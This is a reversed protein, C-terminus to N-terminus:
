EDDPRPKRRGAKKKARKKKSELRREQSARTPKTRIRPPTIRARNELKKRLRRLADRLNRYQSRDRRASVVIGTPVHTLRIGSDTVNQHQGGPGGSRFRDIRCQALLDRDSEPIPVSPGDPHEPMMRVLVARAASTQLVTGFCPTPFCVGSDNPEQGLLMPDDTAANLFRVEFSRRAFPSM